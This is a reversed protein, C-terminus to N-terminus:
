PLPPTSPAARTNSVPAVPWSLRDSSQAVNRIVRRKQPTDDGIVKEHFNDKAISWKWLTGSVCRGLGFSGAISRWVDM